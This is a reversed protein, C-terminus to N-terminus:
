GLVRRQDTPTMGKRTRIDAVLAAASGAEVATGAGAGIGAGRSVQSSRSSRSSRTSRASSMAVEATLMAPWVSGEVRKWSDFRQSVCARGSSLGRVAGSFGFSQSM